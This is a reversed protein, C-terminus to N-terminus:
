RTYYVRVEGRAGVCGPHTNAITSEGAGAGGGGGPIAGSTCNVLGGGSTWAGGMGGAGGISSTGGTGGTADNYAGGGGGGGGNAASGAAMGPGQSNRWGGGCGGGDPRTANAGTGGTATCGTALSIMDQGLFGWRLTNSLYGGWADGVFFNRGGLLTFCTGVTTDGGIMPSSYVNTGAPGGLGVAIFLAVGPTVPCVTQMYGGGGGGQGAGGGSVTGGGGGGGGGSWASVRVWNVGAPPTWNTTCQASSGSGCTWTVTSGDALATTSGDFTLAYSTASSAGGSGSGGLPTWTNQSTCGYWNQGAPASTKFFAEAVFCTAPLDGGSRFVMSSAGSFDNSGTYVNSGPQTAAYWDDVYVWCDGSSTGAGNSCVTVLGAGPTVTTVAEGWVTGAGNSFLAKSQQGTPDPFASGGNGLKNWVGTATCGYLNSGPTEDTKFFLEGTKCSSPLTTGTRAPRTSAAGSFDVDRAQTRLDILTQGGACWAAALALGTTWCIHKM